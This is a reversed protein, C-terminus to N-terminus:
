IELELAADASSGPYSWTDLWIMKSNLDQRDYSTVREVPQHGVVQILGSLWNEPKPWDTNADIFERKDAWFISGYDGSGGRYYSTLNFLACNKVFARNLAAAYDDGTDRLTERWFRRTLGAHTFLCKEQQYAAQFLEQNTELLEHVAAGYSCDIRSGSCSFVDPRFYAVDHNGWLLVVKDAYDTKLLLLDCLNNIIQRNSIRKDHSDVYDGLFVIKDASTDLLTQWKETGHLDGFVQIRRPLAVIKLYFM